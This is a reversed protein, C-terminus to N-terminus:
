NPDTFWLMTPSCRGDTQGITKVPLHQAAAERLKSELRPSRSDIIERGDKRDIVMKPWGYCTDGNAFIIRDYKGTADCWDDKPIVARGDM